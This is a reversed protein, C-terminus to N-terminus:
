KRGLYDVTRRFTDGADPTPNPVEAWTHKAGGQEPPTVSAEASPRSHLEFAGQPPPIGNAVLAKTDNLRQGMLPRGNPSGRAM